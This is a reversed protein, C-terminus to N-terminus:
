RTLTYNQRADVRQGNVLADLRDISRTCDSIGGYQLVIDTIDYRRKVAPVELRFSRPDTPGTAAPIVCFLKHDVYYFAKPVKDQARLTDVPESFDTGRYRVLYASLAEAKHFGLGTGLTDTSFVLGFPLPGPDSPACKKCGAFALGALLAALLFSPYHTSKM